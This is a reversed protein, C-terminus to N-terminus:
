LPRRLPQLPHFLICGLNSTSGRKLLLILLRFAVSAFSPLAAQLESERSVAEFRQRLIHISVASRISAPTTTERRRVATRQSFSQPQSRLVNFRRVLKSPCHRCTAAAQRLPETHDDNSSSIPQSSSTTTFLTVPSLSPTACACLPKGGKKKPPLKKTKSWM